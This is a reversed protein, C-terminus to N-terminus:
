APCMWPVKESRVVNVCPIAHVVLFGDAHVISANLNLNTNVLPVIQVNRAMPHNVKQAITVTMLITQQTNERPYSVRTVREGLKPFVDQRAHIASIALAFSERWVIM